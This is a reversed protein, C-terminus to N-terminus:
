LRSRTWVNTLNASNYIRSRTDSVVNKSWSRPDSFIDKLWSWSRFNAVNTTDNARAGVWSVTSSLRWFNLLWKVWSKITITVLSAVIVVNTSVVVSWVQRTPTQFSWVEVVAVPPEVDTFRNLCTTRDVDDVTIPVVDTAIGVDSACDDM